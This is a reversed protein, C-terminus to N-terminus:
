IHIWKSAAMHTRSDSNSNKGIIERRSNIYNSAWLDFGSRASNMKKTTKWPLRTTSAGWDDDCDTIDMTGMVTQPDM